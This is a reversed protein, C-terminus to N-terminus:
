VEKSKLHNVEIGVFCIDDRFEAGDSFKKIEELLENLLQDLELHINQDITEFLHEQGFLEGKPGDIEYIGDTYLMIRDKVTLQVQFTPYLFGEMLGLAPSPNEDSQKLWKLEGTEKSSLLPQPHGANSYRIIGTQIDFILYFASAFMHIESEKLIPILSRNIETLFPGPNFVLSSLKELLGRLFGTILAARVGHGMVDCIFVGVEKESITLIDFFDGALSTSPQYYHYFKLSSENM